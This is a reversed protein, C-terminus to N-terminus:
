IEEILKNKPRIENLNKDIFEKQKIFQNSENQIQERVQDLYNRVKESNSFNEIEQKNVELWKFYYELKKLFMRYDKHLFKVDCSLEVNKDESKIIKVRSIKEVNPINKKKELHFVNTIHKSDQASKIKVALSFLDYLHSIIKLMVIPRQHVFKLEEILNLFFSKNIYPKLFYAKDGALITILAEFQQKIHPGKPVLTDTMHEIELFSNCVEHLFVFDVKEDNKFDELSLQYTYLCIQYIFIKKLIENFLFPSSKSVSILKSNEILKSNLNLSIFYNDKENEIESILSSCTFNDLKWWPKWNLIEGLYQKVLDDEKPLSSIEDEQNKKEIYHDDETMKKAEKKLIDIIKARSEADKLNMNKLEALVQEEYFSESCEGHKDLNKYCEINCYPLNCRPCVYGATNLNCIGCIKSM